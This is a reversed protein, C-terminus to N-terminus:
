DKHLVLAVPPGVARSQQGDWDHISALLNSSSYVFDQGRKTGPDNTIFNDDVYGKIVLMHYDPGDNSFFPNNLQRGDAPVIVPLSQDLYRKIKEATLDPVIETRYSYNLEVFKAVQAIPLNHHGQWNDEQWQVMGLLIKEVEERVPLDKNQFYYDVMLVSAEECADQWPQAWNGTPAQATFPVDLNIPKNDVKINKPEVRTPESVPYDLNTAVPGAPATSSVSDAPPSTSTNFDEYDHAPPIDARILVYKQHRYFWFSGVFILIIILFLLLRKM